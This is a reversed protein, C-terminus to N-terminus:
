KAELIAVLEPHGHHNAWGAADSDALGDHITPDAGANMLWQVLPAQGRWCAAHLATGKWHYGPPKANVEAGKALLWQAAELHGANVAMVFAHNVIAAPDNAMDAAVTDAFPSAIPGAEPLLTGDSGFFRAMEDTDGLGAATSLARVTAGRKLLLAAIDSNCWYLAEDLPTWLEHGDVAVGSDLILELVDPANCGAASVLPGQTDAGADLLLKASGVADEINHSECAILQLLTPHGCSSTRTAWSPDEALIDRLGDIDSLIIAMAPAEFLEDM